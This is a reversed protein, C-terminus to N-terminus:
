DISSKFIMSAKLESSRKYEVVGWVFVVMSFALLAVIITPKKHNDFWDTVYNASQIFADEQKLLEKRSQKQKKIKVM